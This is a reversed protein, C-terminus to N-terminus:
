STLATVSDVAMMRHGSRRELESQKPTRQAGAADYGLASNPGAISRGAAAASESGAAVVARKM